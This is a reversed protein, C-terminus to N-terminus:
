LQLFEAHTLAHSEACQSACQLNRSGANNVQLAALLEDLRLRSPPICVCESDIVLLGYTQSELVSYVAFAAVAEADADVTFLRCTPTQSPSLDVHEAAIERDRYRIREIM